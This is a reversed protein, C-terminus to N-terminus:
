RPRPTPSRDVLAELREVAAAVGRAAVFSDRIRQANHRIRTDTLIREVAMRLRASDVSRASVRVGAGARAVQDAVIPQDGTMPVVVLPVGHGLAECVTRHGGDCVVATANRALAPLSAHSMVHMNAPPDVVLERPGVIVAQVPLSALAQAASQYFPVRHDWRPVELSVVVLPRDLDSRNGDLSGDDLPTELCPGVFVHRRSRRELRGALEETSFVIALHPSAQPDTRAATIEDFGADRLFRRRQRRVQRKLEPLDWLPDVMGASTPVITAWPLGSLHAVAPGALAQQDAVVVDPRIGDVAAHVAPLMARALPLLFDNWLVFLAGPSRVGGVPRPGNGEMAGDLADPVPVVTAGAPVMGDLAQRYGVWAVEHGRAALGRGLAAAPRIREVVPPAVIVFRSL